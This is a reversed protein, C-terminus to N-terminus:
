AARGLLAEVNARTTPELPLGRDNAAQVADAVVLDFRELASTVVLRTGGGRLELELWGRGHRRTGFWRLRLGDLERWTVKRVDHGVLAIGTRDLRLRSHQRRWTQWLFLVFMCSLALLGFGIPWTPRMTLLPFCSLALGAWGRFYDALMSVRRYALEIEGSATDQHMSVGTGSCITQTM